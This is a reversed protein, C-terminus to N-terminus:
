GPGGQRVLPVLNYEPCAPDFRTVKIKYLHLRHAEIPRVLSFNSQQSALQFSKMDLTSVFERLTDVVEQASQGREGQLESVRVDSAEVLVPSAPTKLLEVIPPAPPEGELVRERGDEELLRYLTLCTSIVESGLSNSAAYRVAALRSPSLFALGHRFLTNEQGVMQAVSWKMKLWTPHTPIASECTDSLRQLFAIVRLEQVPNKAGLGTQLISDAFLSSTGHFLPITLAGNMVLHTM